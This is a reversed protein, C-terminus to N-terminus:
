TAWKRKWITYRINTLIGKITTAIKDPLYYDRSTNRTNRLAGEPM